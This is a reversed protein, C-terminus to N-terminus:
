CTACRFRHYGSRQNSSKSVHSFNLREGLISFRRFNASFSNSGKRSWMACSSVTFLIPPSNLRFIVREINILLHQGGDLVVRVFRAREQFRHLVQDVLNNAPRFSQLNLRNKIMLAFPKKVQIFGIRCGRGSRDLGLYRLCEWLSLVHDDGNRPDTAGMVPGVAELLQEALLLPTLFSPGDLKLM